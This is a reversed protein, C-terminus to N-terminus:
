KGPTFDFSITVNSGSYVTCARGEAAEPCPTISVDTLVCKATRAFRSAHLVLSRHLCPFISYDSWRLCGVRVVKTAPLLKGEGPCERFNIVEASVSHLSLAVLTCSFIVQYYCSKM